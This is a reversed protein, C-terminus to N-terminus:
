LGLSSVLLLRYCDSDTIHWVAEKGAEDPSAWPLAGESVKDSKSVEATRSKSKCFATGNPFRQAEPASGSCEHKRGVTPVCFSLKANGMMVKMVFPVSAGSKKLLFM